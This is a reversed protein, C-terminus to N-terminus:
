VISALGSPGNWAGGKRKLQRALWNQLSVLPLPSYNCTNKKPVLADAFLLKHNARTLSRIRLIRMDLQEIQPKEEAKPAQTAKTM